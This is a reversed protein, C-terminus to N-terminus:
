RSARGGGLRDDLGAPRDRQRRVVIMRFGTLAGRGVLLGREIARVFAVGSSRRGLAVRSGCAFVPNVRASEAVRILVRAAPSPWTSRPDLWAAVLALEDAVVCLCGARWAPFRSSDPPVGSRPPARPVVKHVPAEAAGGNPHRPEEIVGILADDPGRGVSRAGRATLSAPETSECAASRGVYALLIACVEDASTRRCGCTPRVGDDPIVFASSQRRPM